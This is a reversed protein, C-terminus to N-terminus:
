VEAMEAFIAGLVGWFPWSLEGIPRLIALCAWRPGDQRWTRGDQGIKAELQSTRPLINRCLHRLHALIPMKLGDQGRKPPPPRTLGPKAHFPFLSFLVFTKWLMRLLKKLFDTGFHFCFRSFIYTISLGFEYKAIIQTNQTNQNKFSIM